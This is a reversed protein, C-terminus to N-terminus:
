LVINDRPYPSFDSLAIIYKIVADSNIASEDRPYSEFWDADSIDIIDPM